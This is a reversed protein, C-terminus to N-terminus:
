AARRYADREVPRRVCVVDADKDGILEVVVLVFPQVHLDKGVGIRRRLREDRAALSVEPNTVLGPNGVGAGGTLVHELHHGVDGLRLVRDANLGAVLSEM